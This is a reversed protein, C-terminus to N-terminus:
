AAKPSEDEDEEIEQPPELWAVIDPESLLLEIGNQERETL